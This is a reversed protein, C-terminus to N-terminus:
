PSECRLAVLAADPVRDGKARHEVLHGVMEAATVCRFAPVHKKSRECVYGGCVDAYVYVDCDRTFRAYAM